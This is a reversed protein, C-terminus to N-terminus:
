CAIKHMELYAQFPQANVDALGIRIKRKTTRDFVRSGTSEKLM